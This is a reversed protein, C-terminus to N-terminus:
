DLQWWVKPRLQLLTDPIGIGIHTREDDLGQPPMEVVLSKM